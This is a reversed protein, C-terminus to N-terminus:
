ALCCWGDVRLPGALGGPGLKAAVRSEAIISAGGTARVFWWQGAASWTVLLWRSDPAWTPQSVPVGSLVTRAPRAPATLDSIQLQPSTAGPAHRSATQGRVVALWRGDPSATAALVPARV